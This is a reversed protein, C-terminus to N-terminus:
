TLSLPSLERHGPRDSYPYGARRRTAGSLYGPNMSGVFFTQDAPGPLALDPRGLRGTGRCSYSLRRSIFVETSSSWGCVAITESGWRGAASVANAVGATTFDRGCVHSATGTPAQM